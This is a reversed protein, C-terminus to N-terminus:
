PHRDVGPSKSVMRKAERPSLLLSYSDGPGKGVRRRQDQRVLGGAVAVRLGGALNHLQEPAQGLIALPRDQDHRMVRRHSIRAVQNHPHLVPSDRAGRFGVLTALCEVCWPPWVVWWGCTREISAM